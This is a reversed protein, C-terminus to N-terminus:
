RKGERKRREETFRRDNEARKLKYAKDLDIGLCYALNLTYTFIDTLEMAMSHRVNADSMGLSGREIKKVINAFEGVEGALALAHHPISHAIPLDGFWKKSDAGAEQALVALASVVQAQETRNM